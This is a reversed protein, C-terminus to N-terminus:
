MVSWGEWNGGYSTPRPIPLPCGRLVCYGRDARNIATCRPHKRCAEKCNQEDAWINQLHKCHYWLNAHRIVLPLYIGILLYFCCSFIFSLM